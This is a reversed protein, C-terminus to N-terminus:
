HGNLTKKYEILKELNGQFRNMYEGFDKQYFWYFDKHSKRKNLCCQCIHGQNFGKDKDREAEITSPYQLIESLDKKIAIIAKSLDQRNTLAKAARSTRTGHNLNQQHTVLELNEISNNTKNEDIHNIELETPIEGKLCLWVIQHIRFTRGKGNKYLQVQLYGDKHKVIKLYKENRKSWVLQVENSYHLEYDDYNKIQYIRM